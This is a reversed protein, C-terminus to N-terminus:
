DSDETNNIEMSNICLGQYSDLPCDKFIIQIWNWLEKSDVDKDDQTLSEAFAVVMAQQIRKDLNETNLV